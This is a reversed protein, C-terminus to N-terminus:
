VKKTAKIQKIITLQQNLVNLQLQLNQIMAEVLMEKNPSARLQNKLVLYSSDLLTLDSTFQRYLGPQERSLTRLEEQKEEIMKAFQYMQPAEDPAANSIITDIAPTIALMEPAVEKKNLMFYGAIAIIGAAAAAMSWKIVPTPVFRKARPVNMAAEIKEWAAASPAADDFQNRNDEIFQDLRSM